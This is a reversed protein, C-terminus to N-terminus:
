GGFSHRRIRHVAHHATPNCSGAKSSACATSATAVQQTCCRLSKIVPMHTSQQRTWEGACGPMTYCLPICTISSVASLRCHEQWEM